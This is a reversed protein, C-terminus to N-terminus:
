FDRSGCLCFSRYSIPFFSETPYFFLLVANSARVGVTLFCSGRWIVLKFPLRKASANGFQNWHVAWKLNLPAYLCTIIINGLCRSLKEKSQLLSTPLHFWLCASVFACAVGEKEWMYTCVCICVYIYIYIYAYMWLYIHVRVYTRLCECVSARM